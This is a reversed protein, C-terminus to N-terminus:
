TDIYIIFSILYKQPTNTNIDYLSTGIEMTCKSPM